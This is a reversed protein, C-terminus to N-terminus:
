SLVWCLVWCIMLYHTMVSFQQLRLKLLIRILREGWSHQPGSGITLSLSSNSSSFLRFALVSWKHVKEEVLQTYMNQKIVLHILLFELRWFVNLKQWLTLNILYISFSVKEKWTSLNVQLVSLSMLRCVKSLVFNWEMWFYLIKM